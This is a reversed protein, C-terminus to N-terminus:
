QGEFLDALFPFYWYDVVRIGHERATETELDAGKSEGPLRLVLDACLLWPIDQTHLWDHWTLQRQAGFNCVSLGPHFCAHGAKILRVQTENGVYFNKNADGKSIPQAIYIRM